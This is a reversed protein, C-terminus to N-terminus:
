SEPDIIIASNDCFAGPIPDETAQVEFDELIEPDVIASTSGDATVNIQLGIKCATDAADPPYFAFNVQKPFLEPFVPDPPYLGLDIQVGDSQVPDAPSQVSAAFMRDGFLNKGVSDLAMVLGGNIKTTFPTSTAGIVIGATFTLLLVVAMFGARKM